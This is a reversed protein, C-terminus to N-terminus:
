PTTLVKCAKLLLAVTLWPSDMDGEDVVWQHVVWKNNNNMLCYCSM